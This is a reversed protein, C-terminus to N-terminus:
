DLRSPRALWQAYLGGISALLPILGLSTTRSICRFCSSYESFANIQPNFQRAVLQGLPNYYLLNDSTTTQSPLFVGLVVLACVVSYGIWFPRKHDRAFIATIFAFACSGYVVFAIACYPYTHQDPGLKPTAFIAGLVIAVWATLAFILALSFKM